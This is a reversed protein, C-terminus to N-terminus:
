IKERVKKQIQSSKIIMFKKLIRSVIKLDVYKKWMQSCKGLETIKEFEHVKYFEFAPIKKLNAFMKKLCM